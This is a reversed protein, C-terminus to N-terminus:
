YALVTLLPVVAKADGGSALFQVPTRSDFEEAPSTMIAAVDLPHEEGTLSSALEALGPLLGGGTFQWRFYRPHRGIRSSLLPVMRAMHSLRSPSIDLYQAAEAASMTADILDTLGTAQIALRLGRDDRESWGELREPHALGGHARLDALMQPSVEDRATDETLAAQLERAFEAESIAYGDLVDAVTMAM